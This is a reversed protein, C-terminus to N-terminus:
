QVILKIFTIPKKLIRLSEIKFEDKSDDEETVLYVWKSICKFTVYDMKYYRNYQTNLCTDWRYGM